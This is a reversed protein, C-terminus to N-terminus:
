LGHETCPYTNLPLGVQITFPSKYEDLRSLWKIFVVFRYKSRTGINDLPSSILDPAMASTLVLSTVAWPSQRPKYNDWSVLRFWFPRLIGGNHNIPAKLFLNRKRIRLYNLKVPSPSVAHIFFFTTLNCYFPSYFFPNPFATHRSRSVLDNSYYFCM